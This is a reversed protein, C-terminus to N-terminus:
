ILVKFSIQQIARVPEGYDRFRYGIRASEYGQNDYMDTASPYTMDNVITTTWYYSDDTNALKTDFCFGATPILIYKNRDTKNFFKRGVSTWVSDTGNILEQCQTKTPMKWRSGM